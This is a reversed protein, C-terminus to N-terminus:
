QAPVTRVSNEVAMEPIRRLAYAMFRRSGRPALLRAGVRMIPNAIPGLRSYRDIVVRVGGSVIDKVAAFAIEGQEMHGELTRYAFGWWVEDGRREDIVRVVRAGFYRRVFPLPRVILLLTRGLLPADADFVYRVLGPDAFRMSELVRCAARFIGGAAPDGPSEAALAVSVTEVLWGDQRAPRVADADYNYGAGALEQLKLLEAPSPRAAEITPQTRQLSM